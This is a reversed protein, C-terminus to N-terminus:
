SWTTKWSTAAACPVLRRTRRHTAHSRALRRLRRGATFAESSIPMVPWHPPRRLCVCATETSFRATVIWACLQLRDGDFPEGLAHRALTEVASVFTHRGIVITQSVASRSEDPTPTDISLSTAVAQADSHVSPVSEPAWPEIFASPIPEAVMLVPKRRALPM